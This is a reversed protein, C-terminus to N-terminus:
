GRAGFRRGKTNRPTAGARRFEPRGTAYVRCRMGVREELWGKRTPRERVPAPRNAVSRMLFPVNMMSYQPLRTAVLVASSRLELYRNSILLRHVTFPESRRLM